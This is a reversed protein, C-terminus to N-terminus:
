LEPTEWTHSNIREADSKGLGTSGLSQAIKGFTGSLESQSVKLANADSSSIAQLFKKDAEGFGVAAIEIGAAHCTEAARIVEDQNSWVGDALVIAFRKGGENKLERMIDYFPHADNGYGTEGCKIKRIAKCCRGADSSLPLVIHSKDSVAIIGIKSVSMDMQEVFSCMADQAYKLPKGSMSGSVDVALFLLTEEAKFNEPEPPRGYKSMDEPVPEKRIPLDLIDDDQHAQVHIVGNRDYSYQVRLITKGGKGHRIGSVVFKYPIVCDLPKKDGQLVYIELENDGAARTYFKFARASKVPIPYNAPIITENIYSDGKENVAIIGMAHTTIDSVKLAALTTIKKEQGLAASLISAARTKQKGTEMKVLSTYASDKLTTQVAAGLAVAEDPNVHSIPKKGSLKFLYESVQPMRTSGGVLLIDTIDAWATGSDHLVTECLVGTKHLLDVTLSEFEERKIEIISQGYGPLSLPIKAEKKQSLQKKCNEALRTLMIRTDQDERPDIGTKEQVRQMLFDGLRSDWDRGGLIHNGYTGITELESENKMVALTVDCTGGGLDYVLIRANARWHNLGYAIVAATPENIIKRVKLGAQRAAKITAEREKSYFYAPVTIVAEEITDEAVAEADEKIHALLLSSLEVATYDKGNITCYVKDAGMSRKFAVACNTEGADFADKAESGFVLGKNTFQVISPTINSGERNPIIKPVGTKGDIGAVASFTTGLDIGVLM